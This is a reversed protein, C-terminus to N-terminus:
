EFENLEEQMAEIWCSEQLAEKYNKPEVSTLFADFYCFMAEIQLQRRTSVPRSANGIVNDLPHDKTWKILHEPPQNVSHVNTPIVDRSSSEESNPEPIIVGFFPDNDLHAIPYPLDQDISTSPPTGILNDPAPAVVALVPSAVSITGPTMEHLAPGSSSLESTMSTLEDFDVHIIEIIVEVLTRNQREVIGDQQPTRAVLTQHSIGVDEYYSKLTLNVLETGNDTSINTVFTNLHVLIMKLFKIVFELTEDKSRLFKVSTFRSYDDVIVLIYKKGNISEIRMPRCLDMHLLHIKEQITDKSKPKHTHKKSKRLSCASCLHDKEYKLKPLGKTKSAKSLLCIPSSRMMDALSLTYMNTDRSGKLLDAGELGEVYYVLSITVNRIQYDGYGMIKAIHDNSFRVTGLFKEVFNILQSRQETMHKFCGSDLYWLIIQVVKVELNPTIIITQSTEKPPVIPNSTIRTMPYKTGNITFTRRTPLWRHGVSTFVKGTPKWEMKKSKGSKRLHAEVTKNKKNSSAAPTIRNIRTNNKSHSRSSSTSPIVGTSSLFPKNTTQKPQPAAQKQTTSTSEKPEQSRVKITKNMPTVAVLKKREVQSIPCTEFVYVFLEKVRITFKCAYDLYPDSPNHKRAQEVIERLTNTHEKTKQLYDEYAERNNKLRHSLHELVLKFMIPAIVCVNNVIVNNDSVNKSSLNAILFAKASSIDDCDSDYADLDNTQFAADHTIITQTAQGDTVRPDAFFALQEEDLIQGSEQATPMFAMAKNLCAISDDGPLFSPVVLSNTIIIHKMLSHINNLLIINNLLQHHSNNLHTSNYQSQHNTQYSLIHPNNAILALPDPFRERMLRVETAHAEHQSLYAYLQDYNTTHMNRSLKVDIVFKSWEPLLTNLFKNNVQVQQMTMGIIHMDNILQAFRLYYKYLSEGDCDDQIKEADTLEAYTKDRTVGNKEITGYVLPGNEISNLMMRGHEKGKIYLMMRSSWSTYLTMELMPPHNDAGAVIMHEALTTM